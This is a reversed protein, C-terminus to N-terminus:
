ITKEPCEPIEPKNPENQENQEMNNESLIDRECLNTDRVSKMIEDPYNMEELISIAGHIKSIGKKLNYNYILKGKEQSVDMKYNTIQKSKNLKNCVATYHTTLIFDVHSYKSMYNLFAYASKSAETPNTGSYLEDFICYHRYGEESSYNQISDIIEKCRRSEAQFLSDRESTDPINLYSHIHTYPQLTGKEYFVL